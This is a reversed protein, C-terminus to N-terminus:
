RESLLNIKGGIRNNRMEVYRDEAQMLMDYNDPRLPLALLVDYQKDDENIQLDYTDGYIIGLRQKVNALGLGGKESIDGDPTELISNTCRFVVKGDAIALSFHVFSDQRYSVGHKFANEVFTVFLLPPVECEPMDDPADFQISVRDTYRIRMLTIYHNLFTVEKQLPVLVHDTEYLLYRMLRSLVVITDKAKEPNIDILAHINNLTNMFFHPNIQYRLYALQEEVHKQEAQRFAKEDASAKFFYKIGVNMGFLLILIVCGIFDQIEPMIPMRGRPPGFHHGPWDRSDDVNVYEVITDKRNEVKAVRANKFIAADDDTTADYNDVKLAKWHRRAADDHDPRQARTVFFFAIVVAAALPVYLKANKNYVVLPALWFDHICFAILYTAFGIWIKTILRWDFWTVRGSQIDLYMTLLPVLFIILWLSIYLIDEKNKSIFKGLLM